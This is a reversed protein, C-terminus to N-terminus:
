TLLKQEVKLKMESKNEVPVQLMCILGGGKSDRSNIMEEFVEKFDSLFQRDKREFILTLMCEIFSLLEIIKANVLVIKRCLRCHM